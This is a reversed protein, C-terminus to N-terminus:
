HVTVKGYLRCLDFLYRGVIWVPLVVEIEMSYVIDIDARGKRLAAPWNARDSGLQSTLLWETKRMMDAFLAPFALIEDVKDDEHPPFKLHALSRLGRDIRSAEYGIKCLPHSGFTLNDVYMENSLYRDRNEKKLHAQYCWDGGPETKMKERERAAAITPEDYDMIYVIHETASSEWRKEIDMVEYFHAERIRIDLGVTLSGFALRYKREKEVSYEAKLDRSIFLFLDLLTNM